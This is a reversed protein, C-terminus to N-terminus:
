KPRREKKRGEKATAAIDTRNQGHKVFAAAAATASAAVDGM